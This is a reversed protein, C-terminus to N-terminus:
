IKLYQEVAEIVKEAIMTMGNYNPHLGELTDCLKTKDWLDIIRCNKAKAVSKICEGYSEMPIGMQTKPFEFYPERSCTTIPFTCCWVEASPYNIKIKDLMVAYANEIVSLDSKDESTLPYGKGRDNSGLFVIIHHPSIGDYGLGGCRADSCGYSEIECSPAKCVCSGSWSNNVLLQAGFHELVQGWWTDKYGYINTIYSDPRSYFSPYGKPLYGEYTTISDGLFSFYKNKLKDSM